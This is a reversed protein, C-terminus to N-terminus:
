SFCDKVGQYFFLAVLFNMSEFVEMSDPRTIFLISFTRFVNKQQKHKTPMLVDRLVKM